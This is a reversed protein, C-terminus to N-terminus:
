VVDCLLVCCCVVVCRVVNEAWLSLMESALWSTTIEEGCDLDFCYLM